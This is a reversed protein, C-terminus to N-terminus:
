GLVGRDRLITTVREVPLAPSRHGRFGVMEDNVVDASMPPDTVILPLSKLVVGAELVTLNPPEAPVAAVTVAAVAVCSVTVTGLPM